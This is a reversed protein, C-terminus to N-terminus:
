ARCFCFCTRSLFKLLILLIVMRQIFGPSLSGTSYQEFTNERIRVQRPGAVSDVGLDTRIVPSCGVRDSYTPQLPEAQGMHVCIQVLEEATSGAAILTLM